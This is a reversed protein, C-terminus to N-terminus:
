SHGFSNFHIAVEKHRNKNKVDRLHGRIRDGLRRETERIYITCSIKYNLLQFFCTINCDKFTYKFMYKNIKQTVSIQCFPIGTIILINSLVHHVINYSCIHVVM